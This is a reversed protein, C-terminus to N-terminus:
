IYIGSKLIDKEEIIGIAKEENVVPLSHVCNEKMIRLADIAMAASDVFYPYYCVMKEVSENYVDAKNKIAYKLAGNTVIGILKDNIDSVALIDSDSNSIAILADTLTTHENIINEVSVSRMLDVARITLQKGLSGAPHFVGFDKKGFGKLESIAVALADGYVMTITTSTTPALGLHCVEKVGPFIQSITSNRVLTSKPNCTIGVIKAGIIRISPIIRIIEDTEGSYSILVVIDRNQIMGLDGHMCEGPHLFIAPNGLSAMSAAMKKAIHGSKGMGIFIVKGQCEKLLTLIQIFKEDLQACVNQLAHIEEQFVRKAIKLAEM